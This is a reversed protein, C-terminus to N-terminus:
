ARGAREHEPARSTSFQVEKGTIDKLFDGVASRMLDMFAQKRSQDQVMTMLIRGLEQAGEMTDPPACYAVWWDGEVRLAVRCLQQKHTM